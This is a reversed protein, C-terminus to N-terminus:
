KQLFLLKMGSGALIAKAERLAGVEQDNAAQRASFNNLTFDCSKHLDSNTSENQTQENRGAELDTEAATKDANKEARTATKSIVDRNKMGISENTDQVFKEYAKQSDTEAMIADQELQKAEAVVGSLLGVVGGAKDKKYTKFAAPPEQAHKGQILAAGGDRKAYFENLRDLAKQVLNQTARQDAVTLKFENYERERDQGAHLKQVKMEAVEANLQDISQTLGQINETLDAIEAELDRNERQRDEQAHENDRIEKICSDRLAIEDAKQKKLEEVMM